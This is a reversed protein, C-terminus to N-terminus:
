FPPDELDDPSPDAAAEMPELFYFTPKGSSGQKSLKCKAGAKSQIPTKNKILADLKSKVTNDSWDLDELKEILEKQSIEDCLDFVGMLKDILLGEDKNKRKSDLHATVDDPDAVILGNQEKSYQLFFPKPRASNRTKLFRVKILDTEDTSTSSDYGIQIQTDAKNMAETGTHGRAKESFPNEHLVLLFTVGFDECLRGLYDFLALSEDDRNFSAVCDTVVDLVIFLNWTQVAMTDRIFEIWTKVAELREKRDIDKISVPFFRGNDVKRDLGARERMRQVAAPFHEQTNRETDIYGVCFGAGLIHKTFGLFDRKTDSLSALLLACITEALRSKHVGAKGQIVNITGKSFIPADNFSIWAPTWVIDQAAAELIRTYSKQLKSTISNKPDKGKAEDKKKAEDPTKGYGLKGLERAAEIFNGRHKEVAYMAFPSYCKQADFATSTSFPYFRQEGTKTTIISADVGKPNKAGPRNLYITDGDRSVESWGYENALELVTHAANYAEGPKEGTAVVEPRHSLLRAVKILENREDNSIKQINTYDGRELTYGPSPAAYILGGKGRTEIVAEKSEERTTLKQNGGLNEARYIIHLGGSKTRVIVCKALAAAATEYERCLDFFEKDITKKPDHKTDIDIAELDDVGTLIALREFTKKTIARVQEVSQSNRYQAWPSFQNKPEPDPKWTTIRLGAAHYRMAADAMSEIPSAAAPPPDSVGNSTANASVSQINYNQM